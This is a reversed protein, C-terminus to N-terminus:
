VPRAGPTGPGPGTGPRPPGLQGTRIWDLAMDVPNQPDVYVAVRAGPQVRTLHLQAVVEDFVARYSPTGDDRRVQAQIRVVPSIN